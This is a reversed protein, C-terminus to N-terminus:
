TNGHNFTPNYARVVGDNGFHAFKANIVQRGRRTVFQGKERDYRVILSRKRTLDKSRERKGVAFAHVNRRGERLMRRQGGPRVRFEVDQLIIEQRHEKLRGRLLVSWCKRNLNRHVYLNVM